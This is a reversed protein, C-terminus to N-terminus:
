WLLIWSSKHLGKCNNKVQITKPDWTGDQERNQLGVKVQINKNPPLPVLEWTFNVLLSRYDDDM